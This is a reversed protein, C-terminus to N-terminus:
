NRRRLSSTPIQAQIPVDSVRSASNPISRQSEQLGHHINFEFLHNQMEKGHLISFFSRISMIVGSFCSLVKSNLLCQDTSEHRGNTFLNEVLQNGSASQMLDDIICINRKSRDFMVEINTRLGPIEQALSCFLDPQHRGYFWIIRGPPNRMIYRKLFLLQEVSESKGAGRPGAVLTSFPHHLKFIDYDMVHVNIGWVRKCCVLSDYPCPILKDQNEDSTCNPPIPYNGKSLFLTGVNYPHLVQNHYLHILECQMYHFLLILHKLCGINERKDMSAM